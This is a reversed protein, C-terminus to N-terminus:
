FPLHKESINTKEKKFKKALQLFNEAWQPTALSHIHNYSAFVNKYLIGDRDGDIGKGREVKYAFDVQSEDINILRSHHFEHGQVVQGVQFYGNEKIPQMVTYGHGQSKKELIADFPLAGVMEAEKDGNKIKRGLYMMGGCEAYVPIGKEISKKINQRLEKNAALQDLFLEPFGGGIYLADLHDIHKDTLSNIKIVNARKELMSINEPYYFSFVRDHIIGINVQEPIHHVKSQKEDAIEIPKVNYALEKLKEINIKETMIKGIQSIKEKYKDTENAPVLGLHRDPITLNEDKTIVGLVPINCYSEVCERLIRQHRTGGVKNLIVGCINIDKDFHQYGMVMAATSRTMRTCDVVLVVPAQIVKAIQATSGSGQVDRGDYLGMAGEIIAIDADETHQIFSNLITKEDMLISDLNYCPRGTIASMWSPDIYDPGKKFPQVTLGANTLAVLLGLTITTKGSRGKPASILLRPRKHTVM